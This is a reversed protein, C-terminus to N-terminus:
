QVHTVFAGTISESCIYKDPENNVPVCDGDKIRYFHLLLADEDNGNTLLFSIWQYGVVTHNVLANNYYAINILCPRNDTIESKAHGLAPISLATKSLSFENLCCQVYSDTWGIQINYNWEWGNGTNQYHAFNHNPDQAVNICVPLIDNDFDLSPLYYGIVAATANVVCGNWITIKYTHLNQSNTVIHMDLYNYTYGAYYYQLYTLPASDFGYYCMYSYTLNNNNILDIIDNAISVYMSESILEDDNHLPLQKVPTDSCLPASYYIKNHVYELIPVSDNKFSDSISVCKQGKDAFETILPRRKDASVIIYGSVLDDTKLGIYYHSIFEKCDYLPLVQEIRTTDNWSFCDKTKLAFILAITVAIDEDIAYEKRNETLFVSDCREQAYILSQSMLMIIAVVLIIARKKM